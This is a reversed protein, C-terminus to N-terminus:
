STSAHCSSKLSRMWGDGQTPEKALRVIDIAARSRLTIIAEVNNVDISRRALKRLEVLKSRQWGLQKVVQKICAQISSANVPETATSAQKHDKGESPFIWIPNRHTSWYKRLLHRLVPPQLM